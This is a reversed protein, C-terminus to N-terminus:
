TPPKEFRDEGLTQSRLMESYQTQGGSRKSYVVLERAVGLAVSRGCDEEVLALSMDLVHECWFNDLHIGAQCHLLDCTIWHTAARKGSLLGAEALMFAGNCVSTM